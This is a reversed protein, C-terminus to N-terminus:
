FFFLPTKVLARQPPRRAMKMIKPIKRFIVSKVFPSLHMSKLPIQCVKWEVFTTLSGSVNYSKRLSIVKLIHFSELHYLFLASYSHMVMDKNFMSCSLYVTTPLNEISVTPKSQDEVSSM